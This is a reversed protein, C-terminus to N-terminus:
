LKKDYPFDSKRKEVIQDLIQLQPFSFDVCAVSIEDQNRAFAVGVGLITEIRQLEDINTVFHSLKEQIKKAEEFSVDWRHRPITKKM